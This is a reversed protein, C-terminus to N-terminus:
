ESSLAAAADVRTARRAPLWGSVLGVALFVLVAVGYAVPDWSEVGFLLSDLLRAGAAALALGLVVGPLTVAAAHRLVMARVRGADAGLAMRIGIERRRSAVSGAVVGYTGVLSLLLALVAFSGMLVTAFRDQARSRGVVETFPRPRYLVLDPDLGRLEGGIRERLAGLDGQARVTQILAWNRDDAYQAHPVYTHRTARGRADVPVDEVVGVVLRPGGAVRIRQGLPDVDGFVDDVATRSLWAVPEAELDVDSPSRGRLVELGVSEFYDGAIIRIDSGYWNDDGSSTATPDEPDWYFSWIHYRGSVPLWSVAGAAEVGPLSAVRTHLREHFAHRDSGEPYRAVPLNVEYTLVGAPEVTLPVGMLATFSRTLLTAGAVLVLAVAVQVLVLGDRVRRATRGSTAARDSTRLVEAPATRALRLAPALGFTLLAVATAALAFVFVGTGLVPQTTGPLAGPALLLLGRVGGWGLLLGLAGGAGALLANEMLVTAAIRGRGSGLASRVAVDRGRGLGRALVLNAVNLCATFLVLGAAGALILLMTRRTAGVVDAHLPVLIPGWDGADPNAEALHGYRTTARQQAAELTLGEPLRGIGSLYFNGWNTLNGTLDQPIWADADPGFPDEFDPPMVGVVEYPLDDLRVTRGLAAPDAQFLEEWLRNSLIVVPVVSGRVAAAGDGPQGLTEEELFTRGLVPKVGLTEFYGQTVPVVTLRVPREGGTLDVGLERYTYLAGFSEFVDSWTRYAAVTPARLYLDSYEPPRDPPAEYVRVLREPTRYPLPRMMVAELVTYIATNAGVGLALTLVVVAAFGPARALSRAARRAETWMEMWNMWWRGTGQSGDGSRDAGRRASAIRRGAQAPDGFRRALEGADVGATLGDEFHARLDAEVQSREHLELGAADLVEGLLAEIADPLRKRPTM